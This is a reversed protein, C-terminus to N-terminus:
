FLRLFSKKLKKHEIKSIVQLDKILQGSSTKSFKFKVPTGQKLSKISFFRSGSNKFFSSKHTYYYSMDDIVLISKDPYVIDVLGYRFVPPSDARDALAPTNGFAWLLCLTYIIKYIKM